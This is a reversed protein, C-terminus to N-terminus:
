FFEGLVKNSFLRWEENLIQQYARMTASELGYTKISGSGSDYRSAAGLM